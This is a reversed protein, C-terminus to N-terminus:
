GDLKRLSHYSLPPFDPLIARIKTSFDIKAGFSYLHVTWVLTQVSIADATLRVGAAATQCVLLPQFDRDATCQQAACLHQDASLGTLTKVPVVSVNQRRGVDASPHLTDTM